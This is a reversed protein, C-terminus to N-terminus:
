QARGGKRAADEQSTSTFVGRGALWAELDARCYVIRRKGLRRYPPGEGTVRFRQLSRPSYNLFAAAENERMLHQAAPITLREAASVAIPPQSRLGRPRGPQIDTNIHM